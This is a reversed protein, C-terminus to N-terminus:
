RIWGKYRYYLLGVHEHIFVGFARVRDDGRTVAGLNEYDFTTEVSPVSVVEVGAAELARSARLSHSPSTGVLLREFGLERALESVAVAEDHTDLVPGVVLIENSLRLSDMLEVAADRYRPWPLPLESLVMRPAWGEGLLELGGLLRSMAVTSLDGDPQVGSALVFVADAKRPPERRVLPEGMGHPLRAFGVLICLSFAAAAVVVLLREFRTLGLLAGMATSSLVILARDGQFSVLTAFDLEKAVLGLLFGLAAGSFLGRIRSRKPRSERM